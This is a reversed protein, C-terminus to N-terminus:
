PLDIYQFKTSMPAINCLIRNSSPGAGPWKCTLPQRIKDLPMILWLTPQSVLQPLALGLPLSSCNHKLLSRILILMNILFPILQM